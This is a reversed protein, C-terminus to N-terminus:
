LYELIKKDVFPSSITFEGGYRPTEIFAIIYPLSHITQRSPLSLTIRQLMSSHLFARKEQSFDIDM